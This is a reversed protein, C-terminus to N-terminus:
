EACRSCGRKGSGASVVEDFELDHQLRGMRAPRVGAAVGFFDRSAFVEQNDRGNNEKRSV